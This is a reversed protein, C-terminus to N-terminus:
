MSHPATVTAETYGNNGSDDILRFKIFYIRGTGHGSREARLYILGNEVKIDQITNGDGFTGDVEPYYTNTDDGENMTISDLVIDMEADCIDSVLFSPTVEVYRHDPPWLLEPTVSMTGVPPTTDVMTVVQTASATNGSVDTATWTVITSGLPFVAPADNTIVPSPDSIDTAQATGIEVATGDRNAQEASVDAPATISPPTTDVVTVVQTASATNGSGDTATWTIITSGLPFVAPANNTIVPAANCIDSAQATGIEVATGDRNAQEASVDAPAAISPPTTDVVTVVQTASASNGSTDTATWTVITSGFPFVAPGNNTIVPASDSIDSAQASGIVVATGGCNTQEASVDAPSTISPPTTDIVSVLLDDSTSSLGDSVNLAITHDGFPLLLNVNCGSITGFAGTWFCTIPDGDPDYSGTGDLSVNTGTFSAQEVIQDPGASAVPPTNGRITYTITSSNGAADSAVIQVIQEEKSASIIQSGNLMEWTIDDQPTHQIDKLLVGDLYFQYGFGYGRDMVSFTVDIPTGPSFSADAPPNSILITPLSQDVRISREDSAPNNGSDTAETFITNVGDVLPLEYSFAVQLAVDPNGTAGFFAASGNVSIDSIGVDSNALGSVTISLANTLIDV